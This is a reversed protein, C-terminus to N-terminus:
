RLTLVIGARLKITGTAEIQGNSFVAWGTERVGADLAIL